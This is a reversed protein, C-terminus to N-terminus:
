THHWNWLFMSWSQNRSRRYDLHLPMGVPNSLALSWTLYDQESATVCQSTTKCWGTWAEPKLVAVGTPHRSWSPHKTRLKPGLKSPGLSFLRSASQISLLVDVCFFASLQQNMCKQWASFFVPFLDYLRFVNVLSWSSGRWDRFEIVYLRNRLSFYARPGEGLCYPQCFNLRAPRCAPHYASM